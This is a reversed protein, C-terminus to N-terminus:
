SIARVRHPDATVCRASPRHASASGAVQARTVCDSVRASARLCAQMDQRDCGRCTRTCTEAACALFSAAPKIGACPSCTSCRREFGVLSGWRSRPVVTQKVKARRKPVAICGGHTQDCQTWVAPRLANCFATSARVHHAAAHLGSRPSPLAASPRLASHATATRDVGSASMCQVRVCCAGGAAGEVSAQPWKAAASKGGGKGSKNCSSGRRAALAATM